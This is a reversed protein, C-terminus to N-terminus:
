IAVCGPPRKNVTADLNPKIFKYESPLIYKEELAPRKLTQM